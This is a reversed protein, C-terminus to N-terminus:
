FWILVVSAYVSLIDNFSVFRLIYIWQKVEKCMLVTLPIEAGSLNNLHFQAHFEFTLCLTSVSTFCLAQYLCYTQATQCM